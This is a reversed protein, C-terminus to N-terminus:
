GMPRQFPSPDPNTAAVFAADPTANNPKKSSVAQRRLEWLTRRRRVKSSGMRKRRRSGLMRNRRHNGVHISRVFTGRGETCM